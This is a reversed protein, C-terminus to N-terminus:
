IWEIMKLIHNAVPTGESTRTRFLSKSIEYRQTRGQKEFLKRLHLLMEHAGMNEHQRQLELSMSALIYCEVLTSDDYYKKYQLVDEELAGKSPELIIEELVYAIKEFTLFNKFESVM